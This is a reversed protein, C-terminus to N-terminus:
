EIAFYSRGVLCEYFGQLPRERLDNAADDPVQNRLWRCLLQLRSEGCEQLLPDPGAGDANQDSGGPLRLIKFTSKMRYQLVLTYQRYRHDGVVDGGFALPLPYEGSEEICQAFRDPHRCAFATKQIQVVPKHGHYSNGGL